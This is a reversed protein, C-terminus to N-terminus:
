KRKNPNIFLYTKFDPYLQNLRDSTQISLKSSPGPRGFYYEIGKQSRVVFIASHHTKGEPDEFTKMVGTSSENVEQYNFDKKISESFREGGHVMIEEELYGTATLSSSFCNMNTADKSFKANGIVQESIDLEFGAKLEFNEPDNIIEKYKEFFEEKSMGMQKYLDELKDGEEAIVFIKDSEEDYRAIWKGNPDKIIIPNNLVYSFPSNTIYKEFLPDVGGWRGIRSDYYRAGFYDYDSEADREKSTYDYKIGDNNYTRNELLYGWCDYDQASVVANTSSITARVSGLHDKLYYYKTTDSNMHGVMDLGWFNWRSLTTDNYIAIEKGSM